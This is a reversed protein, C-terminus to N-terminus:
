INRSDEELTVRNYPVNWELQGEIIIYPFTDNLLQCGDNMYYNFFASTMGISRVVDLLPFKQQEELEINILDMQDLVYRIVLLKKDTMKGGSEM